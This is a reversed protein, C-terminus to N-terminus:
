KSFQGSQTDLFLYWVSVVMLHNRGQLRGVLRLINARLLTIQTRKEPQAATALLSHKALESGRKLDSLITGMLDTWGYMM